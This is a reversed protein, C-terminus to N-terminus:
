VMQMTEEKTWGRKLQVGQLRLALIPIGKFTPDHMVRAPILLWAIATAIIQDSVLPGGGTTADFPIAQDRSVDAYGIVPLKLSGSAEGHAITRTLSDEVTCMCM